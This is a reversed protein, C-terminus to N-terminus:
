RTGLWFSDPLPADFDESIHVVGLANLGFLREVGKSGRTGLEELAKTVIQAALADTDIGKLQAADRLQQEQETDLSITITM